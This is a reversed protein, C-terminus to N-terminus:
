EPDEDDSKPNTNDIKKIMKALEDLGKMVEEYTSNVGDDIRRRLDTYDIDFQNICRHIYRDISYVILMVGLWLFIRGPPLADIWFLVLWITLVVYSVMVIAALRGIHNALKRLRNIDKTFDNRADM